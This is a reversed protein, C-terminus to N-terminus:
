PQQPLSRCLIEGKPLEQFDKVTVRKEITDISRCNDPNPHVTIFIVDTHHYIIRKTGALTIGNYPAEHHTVGEQSYVSIRGQMLFFPHTISHIATVTLAGAPVFLKRIYTGEGFTHELPFPNKGLVGPMKTFKDQFRTITQRFKDEEKKKLMLDYMDDFSFTHVLGLKATMEDFQKKAEERSITTLENM